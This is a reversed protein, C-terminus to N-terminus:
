SQCLRFCAATNNCHHSCKCVECPQLTLGTGLSKPTSCMSQWAPESPASAVGGFLHVLYNCSICSRETWSCVDLLRFPISQANRGCWNALCSYALILQSPWFPPCRIISVKRCDLGLGHTEACSGGRWVRAHHRLDLFNSRPNSKGDNQREWFWPGEFFSNQKLQGM